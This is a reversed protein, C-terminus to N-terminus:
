RRAAELPQHVPLCNGCERCCSILIMSARLVLGRVCRRAIVGDFYDLAAAFAFLSAAVDPEDAWLYYGVFPALAMRVATMANPVTLFRHPSADNSAPVTTPTTSGDIKSDPASSAIHTPASQGPSGPVSSTHRHGLELPLRGGFAPWPSYVSAALLGGKRREFYRSLPQSYVSSGSSRLVASQAAGTSFRHTITHAANVVVSPFSHPVERRLAATRALSALRSMIVGLLTVDLLGILVNHTSSPMHFLQLAVLSM